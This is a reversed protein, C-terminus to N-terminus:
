TKAGSVVRKVSPRDPFSQPKRSSHDADDSWDMKPSVSFGSPAVADIGTPM